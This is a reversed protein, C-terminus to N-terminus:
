IIDSSTEGWPSEISWVHCRDCGNLHGTTERVTHNLEARVVKLYRLKRADTMMPLGDLRRLKHGVSSNRAAIMKTPAVVTTTIPTRSTAKSPTQAGRNGTRAGQRPSLIEGGRYQVGNNLVFLFQRYVGPQERRAEDAFEYKKRTSAMRNAPTAAMEDRRGAVTSIWVGAAKEGVDVASAPRVTPKSDYLPNDDFSSSWTMAVGFLLMGFGISSLIAM